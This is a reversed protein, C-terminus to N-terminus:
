EREMRELVMLATPNPRTHGAQWKWMTMYQVGFLEAMLRWSLGRAAKLAKLRDPIGPSVPDPQTQMVVIM